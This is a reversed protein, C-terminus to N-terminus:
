VSYVRDRWLRDLNAKYSNLSAANVIEEPLANWSNVVRFAFYHQRLTSKCMRKQLKLSHGRTRKVTCDLVLPSKVNYM